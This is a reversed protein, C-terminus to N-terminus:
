ENPIVSQVVITCNAVHARVAPHSGFGKEAAQLVGKNLSALLGNQPPFTMM